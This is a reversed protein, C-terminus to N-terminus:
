LVSDLQSSTLRAAGLLMYTNRGAMNLSFGTNSANISRGYVLYASLAAVFASGLANVRIDVWSRWSSHLTVFKLLCRSVLQSQFLNADGSHIPQHTQVVGEQVGGARRLRSHFSYETLSGDWM